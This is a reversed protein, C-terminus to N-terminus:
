GTDRRRSVKVSRPIVTGLVERSSANQRRGRSVALRTRGDYMTLIVEIRETAPQPAGQVMEITRLLQRRGRAGYYECQIPILVEPAAVLAHHDASGFVRATSSSTISTM